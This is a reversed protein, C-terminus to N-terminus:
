ASNIWEFGAADRELVDHVSSPAHSWGCSSDFGSAYTNAARSTFIPASRLIWGRGAAAHPSPNPLAVIPAILISSIGEMRRARDRFVEASAQKRFM